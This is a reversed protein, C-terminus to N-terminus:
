YVGEIIQDNSKTIPKIEAVGDWQFFDNDPPIRVAQDRELNNPVFMEKTLLTVKVQGTQYYDVKETCDDFKVVEVISNPFYTYFNAPYKDNKLTPRQGAIGMMTNGYLGVVVAGPFIEEKLFYISERSLSTGSWILGKIKERAVKILDSDSVLREIVLPTAFLVKINQELLIDKVQNIIHEIYKQAVSHDGEKICKRVWRPDFDIYFCMSGRMRAVKGMSRGVIHPGSPGVFLWDGLTEDAPFDHLNLVKNIWETGNSRSYYEIIRKPKGTAGGSEFIEPVTNLKNKLGSPILDSVSVNRLEDSFDPFKNLDAFEKIDTLPNFSLEKAKSLWFKSGTEKSFHFKVISLTHRNLMELMDEKM